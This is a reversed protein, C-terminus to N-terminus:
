NGNIEIVKYEPNQGEYYFINRLEEWLFYETIVIDCIRNQRFVFAIEDKFVLFRYKKYFWIEQDSKESPTGFIIYIEFKSKNLYKEVLVKLKQIKPDM